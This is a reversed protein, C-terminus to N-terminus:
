GTAKELARILWPAIREAWAKQDVDTEILDNRIEILINLRGQQLAHRDIADGPLHGGYPENEGICLTDDTQAAEYAIDLFPRSLREDDAFLVGIHWPRPPHGNLQKTFSHMSVIAPTDRKALLGTLATHYPRYFADRRRDREQRDAHRNAPIISGDYLKMLMTPDDEGRNPDIVLRSFNSFIAPADLIDALYKSVGAAGVDYAIHRNMDAEPLGLSGNNVSPPVTNTAHDCTIVWPSPSDENLISYPYYTM